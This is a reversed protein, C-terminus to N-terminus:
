YQTIKFTMAANATGPTVTGTRKYRAILPIEINKEANTHYKKETDFALPTRNNANLVEVAVGKAAGDISTDINLLGTGSSGTTSEFTVFVPVADEKCRLKVSFYKDDSTSGISTFSKASPNGLQINQIRSNPEAVCSKTVWSFSVNIAIKAVVWDDVNFHAAQGTKSKENGVPGTKIFSIVTKKDTQWYLLEGSNMSTSYPVGKASQELDRIQMGIGTIGTAYINGYINTGTITTFNGLMKSSYKGRSSNLPCTLKPGTTDLRETHLVTGVAVDPDIPISSLTLNYTKGDLLICGTAEAFAEQSCMGFFATGFALLYKTM